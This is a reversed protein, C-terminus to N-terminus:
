QNGVFNASSFRILLHASAPQWGKQGELPGQFSHNVGKARVCFLPFSHKANLVHSVIELQKIPQEVYIVPFNNYFSRKSYIISTKM